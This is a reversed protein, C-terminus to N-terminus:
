GRLKRRRIRQGVRISCGHLLFARVPGFLRLCAPPCPADAVRAVVLAGIGHQQRPRQEFPEIRATGLEVKRECAATVRSRHDVPLPGIRGEAPQAVQDFVLFLTRGRRRQQQEGAILDIGVGGGPQEVGLVAPRAEVVSVTFDPGRRVRALHQPLQGRVHHQVVVLYAVVPVRFVRVVVVMFHPILAQIREFFVLERMRRGHERRLAQACRHRHAVGVIVIIEGGAAEPKEDTIRSGSARPSGPDHLVTM